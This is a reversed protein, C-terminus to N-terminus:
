EKKENYNRNNYNKKTHKVRKYETIPLHIKWKYRCTHHFKARKKRRCRRRSAKPKSKKIQGNSWNTVYSKEGDVIKSAFSETHQRQSSHVAVNKGKMRGSSQKNMRTQSIWIKIRKILFTNKKKTNMIQCGGATITFKKKQITHKKREFNHYIVILSFFFWNFGNIFNHETHTQTESIRSKTSDNAPMENNIVATCCCCCCCCRCFYHPIGNQGEEEREGCFGFSMSSGKQGKIMSIIIKRVCVILMKGTRRTHTGFFAM